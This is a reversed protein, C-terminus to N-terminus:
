WLFLFTSFDHAIDSMIHYSVPTEIQAIVSCNYIHQRNADHTLEVSTAMPLSLLSFVGAVLSNNWLNEFFIQEMM